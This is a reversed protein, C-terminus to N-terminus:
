RCPNARRSLSRSRTFRPDHGFDASRSWIARQDYTSAESELVKGSPDLHAIKALRGVEDYDRTTTVGNPHTLATIKGDARRTYTYRAAQGATPDAPQADIM